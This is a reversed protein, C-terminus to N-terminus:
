EEGSLRKELSDLGAQLTEYVGNEGFHDRLQANLGGETGLDKLANSLINPQDLPDALLYGGILLRIFKEAQPDDGVRQQLWGVTEHLIKVTPSLVAQAALYTQLDAERELEVLENSAGFLASLTASKPYVLIPSNGQKIFPFPIFIADFTAPNVLETMEAFHIGVMVSFIIQNSKFTLTPLLDSAVDAMLSIIITDSNDLVTQNDAVHIPLRSQLDASIQRNRESVWIEHGDNVIGEVIAAAITGTGLFGIKM